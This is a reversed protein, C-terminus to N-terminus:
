CQYQRYLLYFGRNNHGATESSDTLVGIMFPKRFTIIESSVKANHYCNLRGGCYRDMNNYGNSGCSGSTGLNTGEMIIAADDACNSPGAGGNYSASGRSMKFGDTDISQRWGISCYGSERRICINYDQAQLHDYTSTTDYNFTKASGFTGTHYQLCGQPPLMLSSCKIHSVLIRWKRTDSTGTTVVTLSASSSSYAGADLYIHQGANEGCIPPSDPGTVQDGSFYDTSCAGTTSPNALTADVFDLRIRCVDSSFKPFTYKCTAAKNYSNPYGPNVIYTLNFQFNDSSCTDVYIACCSGFGQACTGLILGGRGNCESGSICVGKVSNVSCEENPFKTVQFVNFLKSHRQSGNNSLEFSYSERVLAVTLITVILTFM